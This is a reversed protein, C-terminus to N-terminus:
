RGAIHTSVRDFRIVAAASRLERPERWLGDIGEPYRSRWPVHSSAHAARAIERERRHQLAPAFQIVNSGIM